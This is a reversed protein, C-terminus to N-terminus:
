GAFSMAQHAIKEGHCAGEPHAAKKKRIRHRRQPQNFALRWCKSDSYLILSDPMEAHAAHSVYVGHGGAHGTQPM